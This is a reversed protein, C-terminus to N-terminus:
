DWNWELGIPVKGGIEYTAEIVGQYEGGKCRTGYILHEDTVVPDSTSKPRWIVDQVKEYDVDRPFVLVPFFRTGFMDDSSKKGFIDVAKDADPYFGDVFKFSSNDKLQESHWEQPARFDWAGCDLTVDDCEMVLDARDDEGPGSMIKGALGMGSQGLVRKKREDSFYEWYTDFTRTDARGGNSSQTLKLSKITRIVEDGQKGLVQDIWGSFSGIYEPTFDKTHVYQRSPTPVPRAMGKDANTHGLVLTVEKGTFRRGDFERIYKTPEFEFKRM